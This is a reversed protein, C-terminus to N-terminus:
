EGEVIEGDGEDLDFEFEVEWEVDAIQFVSGRFGVHRGIEVLEDEGEDGWFVLDGGEDIEYDDAEVVYAECDCDYDSKVEYEM